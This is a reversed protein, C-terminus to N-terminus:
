SETELFLRIRAFQKQAEELLAPAQDLCGERAIKELARFAPLVAVMGCTASTGACSHAILNVEHVNNTEIAGALRELDQSIGTLYLDLIEKLENGMVDNMQDVDVPPALEDPLAETETLAVARSFIRDLLNELEQYKVPKSLCDDMGAALCKERDGTMAHATMAVIMTHKITGERRRIEAVAEYGDMEPMQCDMLVLDYPTRDLAAPVERGNAVAHARYGLKGLQLMAVKQNVVNDEVILILKSQAMQVEKLVQNGVPLTLCRPFGYGILSVLRTTSTPLSADESANAEGETCDHSIFSVDRVVRQKLDLEAPSNAEGVCRSISGRQKPAAFLLVM